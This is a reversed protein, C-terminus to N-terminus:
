PAPYEVTRLFREVEHRKPIGLRGGFRMCKMAASVSAFRLASKLLLGEALALAFAGHFVDGAGLTDVAKVEPPALNRFEGNELWCVGENGCTVAIWADTGSAVAALGAQVGDEGSHWKLGDRSFVAHSALELVEPAFPEPTQEVDLIGAVGHERATELVAVAAAPWRTDVLVAGASEVRELPLEAADRFLEPDLFNVIQREGTADVLVTSVSSSCGAIRRVGTTDVGFENLEHVIADGCSDDGVRSWLEARGGLLAVAVAANAGLGGGTTM